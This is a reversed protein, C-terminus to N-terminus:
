RHFALDDDALIAHQRGPDQQQLVRHRALQAGPWSEQHVPCILAPAPDHLIRQQSPYAAAEGSARQGYSSNIRKTQHLKIPLEDGGALHHHRRPDHRQRGDPRNTAPAAGALSSWVSNADDALIVCEHALVPLTVVYPPDM